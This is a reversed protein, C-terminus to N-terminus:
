EYYTTGILEYIGIFLEITWGNPVPINDKHFSHLVEKLEYEM